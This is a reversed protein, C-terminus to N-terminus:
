ETATTLLPSPNIDNRLFIAVNEDLYRYEKFRNNKLQARFRNYFPSWWRESRRAQVVVASIDLRTLYPLGNGQTADRFLDLYRAPGFYDGVSVIQAQRFYFALYEVLLALVRSNEKGNSVLTDIVAQSALYGPLIREIYGRWQHSSRSLHYTESFYNRYFRMCGATPTPCILACCFVATVTRGIWIALPSNAHEDARASIQSVIVGVWAAFTPYWHLSYRGLSSFLWPSALYATAVSLFILQNTPRWSRRFTLQVILFLVLAYMLLVMGNVGVERFYQSKPDTFFRFPLLLLHLPRSDTLTDAVYIRADAQTFIPDPHNFYFNFIPPTPDGAELANRIYWPLSLTLMVLSLLTIQRWRLRRASAFFLLGLFFPLHGILTLKMGACFAGTVILEREFRRGASTQYACLIPVLLFLGIPVDIYAVNLYRLFTPCLAVCLPVLYHEPRSLRWNYTWGRSQSEVPTFFALVGLCTLLGCLWNLFHCYKGLKLIFLASYFLLFNNAFYPFRLFPDVYIRGANAWDVAYALHYTVSDALTPPLVAPIALVLFLLYIFLAPITWAEFFHRLMTRWFDSSLCNAGKLWLFLIGEVLVAASIGFPNLMHTFGLLLLCFGAVAIGAVSTIVLDTISFSRSEEPAKSRLLHGTTFFYFWALHAVGLGALYARFITM